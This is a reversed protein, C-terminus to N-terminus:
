LAPRQRRLLQKQPASTTEAQDLSILDASQQATAPACLALVLSGAFTLIRTKSYSRLGTRWWSTRLTKDKHQTRTPARRNRGEHSSSVKFAVPM